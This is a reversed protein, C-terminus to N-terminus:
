PRDGSLSIQGLAYELEAATQLARVHIDVRSMQLQFLTREADLLDLFDTRGAKYASLTAELSTEAQPLLQEGLLTLQSHQRRLRERLDRVKAQVGLRFDDLEAETRRREVEAEELRAEQKGRWLPISVGVSLTFADRGSMTPTLDGRRVDTYAAGVTFDPWFARRALVTESEAKEIRRRLAEAEPRDEAAEEGAREGVEKLNSPATVDVPQTPTELDTRGTLRALSQLASERDARLTERRMELRGRAVQAKLIAQQSGDGVEYRTSAASEFQRLQEEFARLLEERRQVRYLEYYAAEIRVALNQALAEADAEAVDAGRAAVEGRLGRKGPFPISQRVQWQSRQPGRATVIPYVHATGQVTPDPLSSAQPEKLAQAEARLRAARLSPNARDAAQLLSDLHLVPQVGPTDSQQAFAPHFGLLLTSFVAAAISVPRLFRISM